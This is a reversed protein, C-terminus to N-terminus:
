RPGPATWGPTRSVPQRSAEVGHGVEGGSCAFLVHDTCGPCARDRQTPHAGAVGVVGGVRWLQHEAEAAGALTGDLFTHGKAAGADHKKLLNGGTRPKM